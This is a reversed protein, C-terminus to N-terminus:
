SILYYILDILIKTPLTLLTPTSTSLHLNRNVQSLSYRPQVKSIKLIPDTTTITGIEGRKVKKNNKRKNKKGLIYKKKIQPQLIDPLTSKYLFTIKSSLHTIHVVDPPHPVPPERIKTIYNSATSEPTCGRKKTTKKLLPLILYHM